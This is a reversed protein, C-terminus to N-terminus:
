YALSIVVGFIGIVVMALSFIIEVVAIFQAPQGFTTLGTAADEFQGAIYVQCARLLLWIGVLFVSLSTVINLGSQGIFFVLALAGLSLWGAFTRWPRLAAIRRQEALTLAPPKQYLTKEKHFRDLDPEFLAIDRLTSPPLSAIYDKSLRHLFQVGQMHQTLVSSSHRMSWATLSLVLAFTAAIALLKVITVGDMTVGGNQLLTGILGAIITMSLMIVVVGQLGTRDYSRRFIWLAYQEKTIGQRKLAMAAHTDIRPIIDDLVTGRYRPHM